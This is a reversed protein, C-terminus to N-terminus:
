EHSNHSGGGTSYRGSETYIWLHRQRRPKDEQHQPGRLAGRDPLVLFAATGHRRQESVGYTGRQLPPDQVGWNPGMWASHFRVRFHFFEFFWRFLDFFFNLCWLFNESENESKTPTFPSKSTSNRPQTFSYGCRAVLPADCHIWHDLSIWDSAQRKVSPTTIGKLSM